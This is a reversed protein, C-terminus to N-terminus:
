SQEKAQHQANPIGRERPRTAPPPLPSTGELDVNPRPVYYRWFHEPPDRHFLGELDIDFQTSVRFALGASVGRSGLLIRTLNGQDSELQRAAATVGLGRQTMRQRIYARIRDEVPKDDSRKKGV